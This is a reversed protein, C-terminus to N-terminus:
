IPTADGEAAAFDILAGMIARIRVATVRETGKPEHTVRHTPQAVGAQGAAAEQVTVREFLVAAWVAAGVQRGPLRVGV